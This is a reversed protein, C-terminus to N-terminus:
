RRHSGKSRLAGRVLGVIAVGFAVIVLFSGIYDHVIDFGNMGLQQYAVAAATYRAFNAVLVILLSRALAFLLQNLIVRKLLLTILGAGLLLPVVLVVSSCLGTILLGHVDNAHIGFFVIPGSSVATGHIFFRMCAALWTAEISRAQLQVLILTVGLVGLAIGILIRRATDVRGSFSTSSSFATTM